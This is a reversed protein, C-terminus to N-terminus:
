ENLINISNRFEIYMWVCIHFDLEWIISPMMILLFDKNIENGVIVGSNFITDPVYNSSWLYKNIFSFSPSQTITQPHGYFEENCPSSIMKQNEVEKKM